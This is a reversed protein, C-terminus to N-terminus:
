VRWCPAALSRWASVEMEESTSSALRRPPSSWSIAAQRASASLSIASYEPRFASGMLATESSVVASSASSAASAATRESSSLRLFSSSAASRLREIAEM